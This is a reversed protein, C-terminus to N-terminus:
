GRWNKKEIELFKQKESEDMITLRLKVKADFDVLPQTSAEILMKKVNEVIPSFPMAMVMHIEGDQIEVNKIIGLDLLSANIMPHMVTELIKMVNEHSLDM